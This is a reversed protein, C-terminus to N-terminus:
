RRTASLALERVASVLAGFDASAFWVVGALVLAALAATLLLVLALLALPTGPRHEVARLSIGTRYSFLNSQEYPDEHVWGCCYEL